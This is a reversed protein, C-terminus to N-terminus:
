GNPNQYITLRDEMILEERILAGEPKPAAIGKEFLIKSTFIRAEDWCNETIFSNLIQTGGEVIVSQVRRKHLEALICVPRNMATKIWEITGQTREELTNFILTRADSNFLHSTKKVGLNRDLLIRIPNKGAWERTTLVPNDQIATNKGVLIADEESRWKHTLQESAANSIRTSYDGQKALFGDATQAWKLIVYPRKKQHYTFFRKNLDMARKELVGVEVEIGATRLKEIGKGNVRDFPDRCAVVVKKLGKEILFDTCPPTNGYHVCPELTVYLTSKPILESNSVAHVAHVEAHAEGYKKHYGEGLIKENCVVICGVMPNPSVAGKGLQALELSRQMYLIDNM